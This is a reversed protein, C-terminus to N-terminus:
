RLYVMPVPEADWAPVEDPRPQYGDPYRAAMRAAADKIAARTRSNLRALVADAPDDTLLSLVDRTRAPDWDLMGRATDVLLLARGAVVQVMASGTLNHRIMQARIALANDYSRWVGERHDAESGRPIGRGLPPYALVLEVAARWDNAAGEVPAESIFRDRLRQLDYGRNRDNRKSTECDPCLPDGKSTYSGTPKWSRSTRLLETDCGTCHIGSPTPGIAALMDNLTFGAAEALDKAHIIRYRWYLHRLLSILHPDHHAETAERLAAVESLVAQCAHDRHETAAILSAEADTLTRIAAETRTLHEQPPGDTM